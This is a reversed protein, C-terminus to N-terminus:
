RTEKPEAVVSYQSLMYQELDEYTSFAESPEFNAEAEELEKEFDGTDDGQMTAESGDPFTIICMGYSTFEVEILKPTHIVCGFTPTTMLTASLGSDAYADVSIYALHDIPSKGMNIFNCDRQGTKTGNSNKGWYKCTNCTDAKAQIVDNM